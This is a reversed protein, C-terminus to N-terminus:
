DSVYDKYQVYHHMLVLQDRCNDCYLVEVLELDGKSLMSLSELSHKRLAGRCRM